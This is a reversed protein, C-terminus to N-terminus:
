DNYLSGHFTAHSGAFGREATSSDGSTASLQLRGSVASGPAPAVPGEGFPCGTGSYGGNVLAKAEETVGGTACRIRLAGLSLKLDKKWEVKLM